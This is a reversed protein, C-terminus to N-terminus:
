IEEDNAVDTAADRVRELLTILTEIETPTLHEFISKELVRLLLPAFELALREGEPTLVIQQARRDHPHPERKVLGADETRDILRTARSPNIALLRAIEIGKLRQRPARM